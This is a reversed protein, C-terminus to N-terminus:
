DKPIKLRKKHTNLTGYCQSMHHVHMMNSLAYHSRCGPQSFILHLLVPIYTLITIWSNLSSVEIVTIVILLTILIVRRIDSTSCSGRARGSYM